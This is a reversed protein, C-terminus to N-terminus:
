RINKQGLRQLFKVPNHGPLNSPNNKAYPLTLLKQHIQTLSAVPKARQSGL